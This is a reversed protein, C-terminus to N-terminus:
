IPHGDLHTVRGNSFYEMEEGYHQRLIAHMESTRDEMEIRQREVFISLLAQVREEKPKAEIDATLDKALHVELGPTKMSLQGESVMLVTGNPSEITVPYANTM